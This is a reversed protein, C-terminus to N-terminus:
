LVIKYQAFTRYLEKLPKGGKKRNKNITFNTIYCKRNFILSRIEVFILRTSPLFFTVKTQLKESIHVDVHVM